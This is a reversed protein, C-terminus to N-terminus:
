HDTSQTHPSFHRILPGNVTHKKMKQDSHPVGLSFSFFHDSHPDGLLFLSFFSSLQTARIRPRHLQKKDKIWLLNNSTLITKYKSVSISFLSDLIVNWEFIFLVQPLKKLEISLVRPVSNHGELNSLSRLENRNLYPILNPIAFFKFTQTKRLRSSKVYLSKSRSKEM